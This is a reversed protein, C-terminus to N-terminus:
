QAASKAAVRDAPEVPGADLRALAIQDAAANCPIGEREAHEFIATLTDGIGLVRREVDSQGNPMFEAALQIMGGSNIVYDPAYLVGRQMLAPGDRHEVALQNNAGGAIIGAKLQPITETNLVAGLACPAFIDANVAHIQSADAPEADWLRVARQVRDSLLDSVTLQAGAEHLLQCLRWGVNGLGQVAVTVGHMDQGPYRFEIAASIGAFCGLATSPSPDGSGGQEQSLGLVHRTERRIETMDTVTSGVDEGTIYRGGLREIARGVSQMLAPTKEQGPQLMVVMKGGGFPAHAVAAKMTMGRSLRLVDDLAETEGAYERIRCGGIAPGLRTSHVAIICRLGTAKDTAYVVQEHDAFSSRSFM